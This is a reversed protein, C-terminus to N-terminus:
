RLTQTKYWALESEQTTLGQNLNQCQRKKIRSSIMVATPLNTRPRDAEDLSISAQGLNEYEM